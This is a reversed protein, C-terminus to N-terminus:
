LDIKLQELKNNLKNLYNNQGLTLPRQFLSSDLQAEITKIETNLYKLNADHTDRLEKSHQLAITSTIFLIIDLTTEPPCDQHSTCTDQIM